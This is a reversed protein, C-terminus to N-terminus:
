IDTYKEQDHLKQKNGDFTEETSCILTHSSHCKPHMKKQSHESCAKSHCSFFILIFSIQYLSCMNHKCCDTRSQHKEQLEESSSRYMYTTLTCRTDTPFIHGEKCTYLIDTMIFLLHLGQTGGYSASHSTVAPLNPM